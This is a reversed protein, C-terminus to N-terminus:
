RVVVERLENNGNFVPFYMQEVKVPNLTYRGSFRAELEVSFEYQGAPLKECFIATKEKFYERHVEPYHRGNPKKAYSCSAPIPIEILVYEAREKVDVSVKLTAREGQELNQVVKGKQHLVAQIAFLSDKRAPKPNFFRQYATFFVPTAGAKTITLPQSSDYISQHPFNKVAKGNISLLDNSWNEVSTEQLIDPLITKLVQATQFTNLWGYGSTSGKQQFFYQRIRHLDETKGAARLIEYALLTPQITKDRWYWENQEWFISGFTNFQQYHYISDLSYPWGLLQRVQITLFRESLSLEMSDLQALSTEFDFPIHSEALLSLSELLVRRNSQPAHIAIYDLGKKLAKSAFGAKTAEQLAKSVYVTMWMNPEGNPWWGWSGNENQSKELRKIMATIRDAEKFPKGVQENITKNMLLALMRSATQENCGYPYNILHQIDEIFANLMWGEVYVELKGKELDPQITVTTDRDLIHFYGKTEEMGKRFIPISRQEGDLYNDMQLTYTLHLSDEQLPAHISVNEIFGDTLTTQNEQLIKDGLKFATQISFTDNTYNLSKGVITTEDGEILFRPLALQASLPKFSKTNGYAVGARLKDDMGIVFTNWSTTNDPYTVTFYAEGNKDTILNPQWYAYDKFNSRIGNITTDFNALANNARIGDIYFDTENSRSGRISLENLKEVTVGAVRGQLVNITSVAAAFSKRQEVGYGVVVVEELDVGLELKVNKIATTKEVSVEQTEYGISSFVLTANQMDRPLEIVYYGDMDTTTGILTNKLLVVAGILPEGDIDTVRGQIGNGFFFNPIDFSTSQNSLNGRITPKSFLRRVLGMTDKQWQIATFNHFLLSHPQIDFRQQYVEFDDNVLTLTYNGVPLPDFLNVGPSFRELVGLEEQELAIAVLHNFASGYVFQYSGGGETKNNFHSLLPLNIPSTDKTYNIASPKIITEETLKPALKTPLQIKKDFHNTQYLRERRPSIQYEFGPEFTFHTGFADTQIFNISKFTTFPGVALPTPLKQKYDYSNDLSFFHIATTDQWIYYDTPSLPQRLFLIKNKVLTREATTLSDPTPIRRMNKNNLFRDENISFELKYGKKLVVSDVWYEYNPTRITILNYGEEGVFSYPMNRDAEYYYVLNRNCYLLIIPESQGKNIVYPAFQAVNRYFSDQQLSIYETHIAEDAYRLRYFLQEDLNFLEYWKKDLPYRNDKWTAAEAMFSAYSKLPKAKQYKIKLESFSGPSNFQANVAGAALNVGQVQKQKYDKVTVKVQVQEGPLVQTPQATEIHLISEIAHITTVNSVAKGAWLYQYRAYYTKLSEDQYFLRIRAEDTQGEEIIKEGRSIWYNIPIQHPNSINIFISDQVYQGSVDVNAQENPIYLTQRLSYNGLSYITYSNIYPNLKEKCPLSIIKDEANIGIGSISLKAEQAVSQGGELYEGIVYGDKLELKYVKELTPTYHITLNKEHLEGNSNTFQAQFHIDFDAAPLLSDPFLLQTPENTDLAQEHMWLTDPIRLEVAESYTVKGRTAVLQVDGDPITFGNKDKGEALLVIKQGQQYSPQTSSFTYEVEDLQYDELKFTHRLGAIYNNRGSSLHISYTQDLLLSDGIVLKYLLSGNEDPQFTEYKSFRNGSIRFNLEKKWPKGKHNAVFAKVQLTDGHRYIPKNLAIYGKLEKQKKHLPNVRNWNIYWNQYAFGRKFYYFIGKGWRIPSTIYYGVVTNSFRRHYAYLGEQEINYFLVQGQAEVKLLSGKKRKPLRYSKTAADYQITKNDLVVTAPFVLQGVTDIIQVAFDRKNNLLIASITTYVELSLVLEEQVTKALIYYGPPLNDLSDSSGLLTKCDALELKFNESKIKRELAEHSLQYILSFESSQSFSPIAFLLLALVYLPRM